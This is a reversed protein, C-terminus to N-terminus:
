NFHSTQALHHDRSGLCIGRSGQWPRTMVLEVGGVGGEKIYDTEDVVWRM